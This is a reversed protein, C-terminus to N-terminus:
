LIIDDDYKKLETSQYVVSKDNFKTVNFREPIDCQWTLLKGIGLERIDNDFDSKSFIYSLSRGGDGLYRLSNNWKEELYKTLESPKFLYLNNESYRPMYYIFYDAETHFVGSLKNSCKKEICINGTMDYKDAKVEFLVQKIPVINEMEYINYKIDWKWWDKKPFLDSISITSWAIRKGKNLLTRNFYPEIFNHMENEFYTGWENDNIFNSVKKM